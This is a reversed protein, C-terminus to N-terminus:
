ELELGYRLLEVDADIETETPAVYARDDPHILQNGLGQRQKRWLGFYSVGRQIALSKLEKVKTPSLQEPDNEFEYRYGLGDLTFADGPGIRILLDETHVELPDGLSDTDNGDWCGPCINRIIQANNGLVPKILERIARYSERDLNDELSPAILVKNESKMAAVGSVIGQVRRVIRSYRERTSPDFRIAARFSDPDFQAFAATIPTTDWRRMTPGSSLYLLLTFHRGDKSLRQAASMLFDEDFDFTGDALVALFVNRVRARELTDIQKLAMPRAKPHMFALSAFGTAQGSVWPLKGDPTPSPTPLITPANRAANSRVGPNFRGENSPSATQLARLSSLIAESAPSAAREREEGFPTPRKPPITPTALPLVLPLPTPARSTETADALSGVTSLESKAGTGPAFTLGPEPFSETPEAAVGGAVGKNASAAAELASVTAQSAKEGSLAAYSAVAFLVLLGLQVGRRM